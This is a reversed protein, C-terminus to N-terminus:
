CRLTFTDWATSSKRSYGSGSGALHTAPGLEQSRKKCGMDFCERKLIPRQTATFVESPPLIPTPLVTGYRLSRGPTEIIGSYPLSTREPPYSSVHQTVSSTIVFEHSPYPAVIALRVTPCSHASDCATPLEKPTTFGTGSKARHCSFHHATTATSSRALAKSHSETLREGDRLSSCPM